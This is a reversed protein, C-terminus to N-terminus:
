VKFFFLMPKTKINLAYSRCIMLLIRDRRDASAYRYDYEDRVHIVFESSLESVTIGAIKTIDIRRKIQSRSSFFALAKAFFGLRHINYLAKSTIMLTRTQRKLRKNYKYVLTTLLVYEINQSFKFLNNGDPALLKKIGPDKSLRLEDYDEIVADNREM